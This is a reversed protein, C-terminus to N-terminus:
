IIFNLVYTSAAVWHSIYNLESWKEFAESFSLVRTDSIDIICGLYALHFVALASWLLNCLGVMLLKETYTHHTCPNPCPRASVCADLRNSLKARISHEIYTYFGLSMLVGALRYNLGHLLSSVTYTLLVSVLGGMRRSTRFIYQKLWRHMSMNWYIVVQVLSRPLEIHQPRSVIFEWSGDQQSGFGSLLSTTESLFSVFYHSMRFQLADRYVIWWTHSSQPILWDIWCVSLVFSIFTWLFAWGVQQIWKVNWIPTKYIALYDQFSVWPGFVSTGVCLVYGTYEPVSPLHKVSGLDVDFGLSIVKMVVLMEAGRIKQWSERDMSFENVVLFSFGMLGIIPGRWRGYSNSIFFLLLYAVIVLVLIHFVLYKFYYYLVYLGTFGSISHKMVAPLELFQTVFRFVLCWMLLKLIHYGSDQLAPIVCHQLVESAHLDSDDQIRDDYDEYDYYM